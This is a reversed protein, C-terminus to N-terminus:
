LSLKRLLEQEPDKYTAKITYNYVQQIADMHQEIVIECYGIMRDCELAKLRHDTNIYNGLIMKPSQVEAVSLPVPITFEIM